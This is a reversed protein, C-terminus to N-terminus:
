VHAVHRCPYRRSGSLRQRLNKDHQRHAFICKQRHAQRRRLPDLCPIPANDAAASAAYYLLVDAANDPHDKFTITRTDSTGAIDGITIQENYYGERVLFITESSVGNTNLYNVAATFSTFDTGAGNNIDVIFTDPGTPATLVQVAPWFGGDLTYSGGSAGIGGAPIGATGSLEYDEATSTGGGGGIVYAPIEYTQSLALGPLALGLFMIASISKRLDRKMVTVRKNKSAVM